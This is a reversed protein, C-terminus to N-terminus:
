AAPRVDDVYLAAVRARNSGNRVKLHPRYLSPVNDPHQVLCPVTAWVVLKRKRKWAGVYPDDAQTTLGRHARAAVVEEGFTVFDDIYKAPWSLAVTPVWNVALGSSAWREGATHANLVARRYPDRGPVFFALLDAPREAIAAEALERFGRCPIADDQVILRHTAQAPTRRLAELYTRFASPPWTDPEPDVVLEYGGLQELLRLLASRAPHHMVAVSLTSM